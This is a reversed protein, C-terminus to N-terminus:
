SFSEVRGRNVVKQYAKLVENTLERLMNPSNYVKKFDFKEGERDNFEANLDIILDGLVTHICKFLNKEQVSTECFDEPKRHFKKGTEDQSLVESQNNSNYM